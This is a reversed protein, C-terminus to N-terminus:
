AAAEERSLTVAPEFALYRVNGKTDDSFYRTAVEGRQAADRVADLMAQTGKEMAFRMVRGRIALTAHSQGRLSYHTNKADNRELTFREVRTGDDAIIAEVGTIVCGFEEVYKMGVPLEPFVDARIVHDRAMEDIAARMMSEGIGSGRLAPNVNLSAAYLTGDDRQDFRIFAAIKQDKRLLYLKTDPRSLAATLGQVITEAVAKKQTTWNLRAITEMTRRDEDTLDPAALSELQVGRIDEFGLEPHAKRTLRFVTAFLAVDANAHNLAQALQPATMRKTATDRLLQAGRALLDRRVTGLDLSLDGSQAFSTAIDKATLTTTDAIAAFRQYIVKADPAPYRDAIALIADRAQPDVASALFSRAADIGYQQIVHVMRQEEQTDIDRMAGILAIQEQLNLAAIDFGFDKSFQDRMGLDFAFAVDDAINAFDTGQALLRVDNDENIPILVRRQDVFGHLRGMADFAAYKGQAVEHVIANPLNKPHPAHVDDRSRLALTQAYEAFGEDGTLYARWPMSLIAADDMRSLFDPDKKLVDALYTIVGHDSFYVVEAFEALAKRAVRPDKPLLSLFSTAEAGSETVSFVDSIRADMAAIKRQLLPNRSQEKADTLLMSLTAAFHSKGSPRHLTKYACDALDLVHLFAGLTRVNGNWDITLPSTDVYAAGRPLQEWLTALASTLTNPDDSLLDEPTTTAVIAAVDEDTFTPECTDHAADPKAVVEPLQKGAAAERWRHHTM